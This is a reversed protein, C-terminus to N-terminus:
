HSVNYIMLGCPFYVSARSSICPHLAGKIIDVVEDHYYALGAAQIFFIGGLLVPPEENEPLAR